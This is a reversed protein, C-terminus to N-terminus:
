NAVVVTSFRIVRDGLMFGKQFEESVVKEGLAPDEVSMVANHLNPDFTEGLSNIVTVGLSEFIECLGTMTMEVGKYFAEDACPMKLARELNDYVPLMATIASARAETYAASKEKASRKRFNDYEALLRLYKDKEAALECAPDADEALQQKEAAENAACSCDCEDSADSGNENCQFTETNDQPGATSADYSSHAEPSPQSDANQTDAGDSSDSKSQKFNSIKDKSINHSKHSASDFAENECHKKATQEDSSHNLNINGKMQSDRNSAKAM